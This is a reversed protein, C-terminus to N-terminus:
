FFTELIDILDADPVWSYEYLIYLNQTNKKKQLYFVFIFHIHLLHSVGVFLGKEWKLFFYWIKISERLFDDVFEFLPSKSIVNCVWLCLPSECKLCKLWKFWHIRLVSETELDVKISWDAILVTINKTFYRDGIIDILCPIWHLFYNSYVVFKLLYNDSNECIERPKFLLNGEDARQINGQFIYLLLYNIETFLFVKQYKM